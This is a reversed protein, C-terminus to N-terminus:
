VKIQYNEAIKNELFHKLKNKNTKGNKWTKLIHQDFCNVFADKQKKSKMYLLFSFYFVAFKQKLVPKSTQSFDCQEFLKVM